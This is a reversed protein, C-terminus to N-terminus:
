ESDRRLLEYRVITIGNQHNVKIKLEPRILFIIWRIVIYLVWVSTFSIAIYTHDKVGLALPLLIGFLVSIVLTLKIYTKERKEKM